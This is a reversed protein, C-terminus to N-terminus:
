GGGAGRRRGHGHRRGAHGGEGPQAYRSVVAGDGGRAVVGVWVRGVGM